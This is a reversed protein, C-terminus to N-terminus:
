KLLKTEFYVIDHLFIFSYFYFFTATQGIIIYPSEAPQAGLWGLCCVLTIFYWYFIPYIGVFKTCHITSNKSLFPLSGLILIAVFM